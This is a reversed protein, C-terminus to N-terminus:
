TAEERNIAELRELLHKLYIKGQFQMADEHSSVIAIDFGHENLVSKIKEFMLNISQQDRDICTQDDVILTFGSGSIEDPM